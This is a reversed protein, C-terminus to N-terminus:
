VADTSDASEAQKPEIAVKENNEAQLKEYYELIELKLKRDTIRASLKDARAKTKAGKLQEELNAIADYLYRKPQLVRKFRLPGEEMLKELYSKSLEIKTPEGDVMELSEVKEEFTGDLANLMEQKCHEM